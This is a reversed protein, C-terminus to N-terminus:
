QGASRIRAALGLLAKLDSVDVHGDEAAKMGRLPLMRARRLRADASDVTDATRSIAKVEAASLGAKPALPTLLAQALMEQDKGAVIRNSVVHQTQGAAGFVDRSKATAVVQYVHEQPQSPFAIRVKEGLTTAPLIQVHVSAPQRLGGVVVPVRAGTTLNTAAFSWDTRVPRATGFLVMAADGGRRMTENLESVVPSDEEPAVRENRISSYEPALEIEWESVDLVQAPPAPLDAREGAAALMTSWVRPGPRTRGPTAAVVTAALGIRPLPYRVTTGSALLLELTGGKQVAIPVQRLQVGGAPGVGALEIRHRRGDLVATADKIAPREGTVPADPPTGVEVDIVLPPRDVAVVRRLSRQVIQPRLAREPTMQFLPGSRSVAAGEETLAAPPEHPREVRIKHFGEGGDDNRGVMTEVRIYGRLRGDSKRCVGTFGVGLDDDNQQLENVEVVIRGNPLQLAHMRGDDSDGYASLDRSTVVNKSWDAEDSVEFTKAPGNESVEFAILFQANRPPRAWPAWWPPFTVGGYPGEPRFPRYDEPRDFRNSDDQMALLHFVDKDVGVGFEREKWWYLEAPHIEPRDGHAWETVWPGYVCIERGVLYSHGGAPREADAFFWPNGFFSLDPTTEVELCDDEKVCNYVDGSSAEPLPDQLIFAHKDNPIIFHNFDFEDASGDYVEFRNVLGCLRKKFGDVPYWNARKFFFKVAPLDGIRSHRPDSGNVGQQRTVTQEWISDTLQDCAQINLVTHIPHTVTVRHLAGRDGCVGIAGPEGPAGPEAPECFRLRYDFTGACTACLKNLTVSSQGKVQFITRWAGQGKREELRPINEGSSPLVWNLRFTGTSTTPGSINPPPQVTITQAKTFPGCGSQNCARVTYTYVGEDKERFLRQASTTTYIAARTAGQMFESLRYNAVTGSAPRWSLVYSTGVTMDPGLSGPAGPINLVSVRVTNSYGGCAVQSCARVRYFFQGDGRTLSLSLTTGTPIPLFAGSSGMREEMVYRTVTGSATTWSLTFQGTSFTSSSTLTGPPGPVSSGTVVVTVEASYEECLERKLEPEFFCLQLRYAYTGPPNTFSRSNAGTVNFRTWQQGDHQELYARQQGGSTASWSVQYTGTSTAPAVLPPLTPASTVTVIVEAGPPDCLEQDLEPEFTCLELRYRYTGPPQTFTRSNTGTVRIRTTRGPATELLYARQSGGSTETWSVTYTGTSTTPATLQADADLAYGMVLAAALRACRSRTGISAM